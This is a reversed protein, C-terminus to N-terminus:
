TSNLPLKGIFNTQLSGLYLHGEFELVSTVFAMVQGTPDDFSRKIQKGNSAVNVVMAKKHAGFIWLRSVTLTAVIRKVIRAGHVFKLRPHSLQLMAIWFSGDPALNINDPTGPLNDIFVETEGKTDGKLWYKLCRFKWTECVVLFDQDASLAVGNAFALKDLVVSTEKSRPNYKLLRGHPRAELVDLHWENLSFKTSADSFYLTGDSSEIVDDALRFKSGNFHSVLVEVGDENVKLLGNEADCVIVDGAQTVTLGLLGESEVHWWSEWTGNKHLRRIWGDRTATYLIGDKDIAIDEPKDLLGEGLRIVEQM